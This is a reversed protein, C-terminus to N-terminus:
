RDGDLAGDNRRERKVVLRLDVSGGTAAQGQAVLAPAGPTEHTANVTWTGPPLGRVEFRGEADTKIDDVSLGREDHVSVLAHPAGSPLDLVRGAISAGERRTLLLSGVKADFEEYAYRGHLPEMWVAYRVGVELGSIETTREGGQLASTPDIFAMHVPVWGRETRRLVAVQMSGFLSRLLDAPRSVAPKPESGLRLTVTYARPVRLTVGAVDGAIKVQIMHHALAPPVAVPPEPGAGPVEFISQEFQEWQAAGSAGGHRASVRVMGRKLAGFQFRGEEDSRELQMENVDDAEGGTGSLMVQADAVPRNDTDVVIGSLSFAQALEVVTDKPRWERLMVPGANPLLESEGARTTAESPDGGGCALGWGTEKGMPLARLLYTREPDLGGLLAVGTADATAAAGNWSHESDHEGRAARAWEESEAEGSPQLEASVSAHARPKGEPGMVTIRAVAATRLRIELPPSGAPVSLPRPTLFGEPVEIRLRHPSERGHLAIRFAGEADTKVRTKLGEFVPRAAPTLKQGAGGLSGPLMQQLIDEVDVQGRGRPEPVSLELSVEGLPGEPGLVRGEVLPGAALRVELEREDGALPGVRQPALGLSRDDLDRAAWIELCAGRLDMVSEQSSGLGVELQLRGEGRVGLSRTGAACLLRVDFRPVPEGAPTLVRVAVTRPRRTLTMDYDHVGSSVFGRAGFEIEGDLWVAEVGYLGKALGELAYSGDAGVAARAVLGVKDVMVRVLAGVAPKGYSLLARGRIALAGRTMPARGAGQSGQLTPGDGLAEAARQGINETEKEAGPARLILWAAVGAVAPIACLWGLRWAQRM